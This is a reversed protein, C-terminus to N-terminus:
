DDTSATGFMPVKKKGTEESKTYFHAETINHDKGYLKIILEPTQAVFDGQIEITEKQDATKVVSAGCAFKKGM